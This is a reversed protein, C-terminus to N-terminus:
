ITEEYQIIEAAKIPMQSDDRVSRAQSSRAIMPKWKKHVLLSLAEYATAQKSPKLCGIEEVTRQKQRALVNKCLVEAQM